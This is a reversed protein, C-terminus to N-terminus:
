TVEKIDTSADKLRDYFLFRNKGEAKARYMAQDAAKVLQECSTADVPYHAVGISLSVSVAQEGLDIPRDVARLIRELLPAIEETHKLDSLILVFEDGGLRVLRDHHRIQSQIRSVVRKLVEDGADHGLTDNVEKFGDLDLFCIASLENNKESRHIAEHVSEELLHRNPIGTLYDYHAISQLREKAEEKERFLTGITLVLLIHALIFFNIDILHDISNVTQNLHALTLATVSLTLTAILGYLMDRYITLLLTLLLTITMLLAVHEIMFLSVLLYYLLAFFLMVSAIELPHFNKRCHYLLLLLPTILLQGMTNGFWWTFAVQLYEQEPFAGSVFLALTGFLTSFPQLVLTILLILGIVDRLSALTKHLGLRYFLVVAMIAEASNTAAILLSPLLALGTSLALALQGIFIGPWLSRGFLLVSALAFGEAAFIVITIISENQAISFSISGSIFYLLALLTVRIFYLRNLHEPLLHAKNEIM